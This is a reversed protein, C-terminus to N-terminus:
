QTEGDTPHWNGDYTSVVVIGNGLESLDFAEPQAPTKSESREPIPTPQTAQPALPKPEAARRVLFTTKDGNRASREEDRLQASEMLLREWSGQLTRQSPQRYPCLQFRGENLSLLRHLAKEGSAEGAVAHILAGSEIYIEGEAQTTHIELICTSRRLCEIQIIDTLCVHQLTGSFGERHNWTLLDHLVNFVFRLGDQTIPKELFLEAGAALCQARRTADALGTLVVLKVEPHRRHLMALLQQGDLMPMSLDLVALEIPHEQILSLAQDAGCARHIEWEGKALADFMEAALELFAMSDDVLLLQHKRGAFYGNSAAPSPIPNKAEGHPTPGCLSRATAPSVELRLEVEGLRLVGGVGLAGETILADKIFTGNTSRLDRVLLEDGQWLVECHHGSVSSEPIQFQNGPDRGITVWRQGLQHALGAQSKSIVVLKAM